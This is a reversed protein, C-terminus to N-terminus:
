NTKFWGTFSLRPAHAVLVEHELENSLFCVLTRDLPAVEIPAEGSPYMRLQGGDSATWAPNLYLIVTVKRREDRQFTDRHRKYFSGIGYSAYHGEFGDLGLYLTRNLTQRLSALQNLLQQQVPNTTQADWWHIEDRRVESRIQKAEGQGIGAPKFLGQAQIHSLDNRLERAFAPTIFDPCISRGTIRLQDAIAEHSPSPATM